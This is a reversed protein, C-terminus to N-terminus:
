SSFLDNEQKMQLWVNVSFHELESNKIEIIKADPNNRHLALIHKRLKFKETSTKGCFSCSFKRGEHVAAVHRRLSCKETFTQNCIFCSFSKNEEHIAPVNNIFENPMPFHNNSLDNLALNYESELKLKKDSNEISTGDISLKEDVQFSYLKKQEHIAPINNIVGHPDAFYNKNTLNYSFSNDETELKLRKAFSEDVFTRDISVKEEKQSLFAKEPQTEPDIISQIASEIESQTNGPIEQNEQGSGWEQAEFKINIKGYSQIM